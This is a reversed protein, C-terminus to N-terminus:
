FLALPWHYRAIGIRSGRPDLTAKGNAASLRNIWSQWTTAGVPRESSGVRDGIVGECGVLRSGEHPHTDLRQKLGTFRLNLM